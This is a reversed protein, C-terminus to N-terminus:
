NYFSILAEEIEKMTRDINDTHITRTDGNDFRIVVDGLGHYFERIKPVVVTLDGHQMDSLHLVVTKAM